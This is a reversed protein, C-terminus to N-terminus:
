HFRDLAIAALDLNAQIIPPSTDPRNDPQDVEYSVQLLKGDKLVTVAQDLPSYFADRGFGPAPEISDFHEADHRLEKFQKAAEDGDPEVDVEVRRVDNNADELIFECVAAKDSGGPVIQGDVETLTVGTIRELEADQLLDCAHYRSGSCRGTQGCESAGEIDTDGSSDGVRKVVLDAARREIDRRQERTVPHLEATRTYTSFVTDGKRVELGGNVSFYADDGLGEVPEVAPGEGDDAEGKESKGGAFDQVAGEGQDIEVSIFYPEVDSDSGADSADGGDDTDESVWECYTGSSRDTDESGGLTPVGLLDTAEDTTLLDCANPPAADSGGGGSGCAAAGLLLMSALVTVRGWGQRVGSV